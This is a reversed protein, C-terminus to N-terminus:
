FTSKHSFISDYWYYGFERISIHISCLMKIWIVINAEKPTDILV